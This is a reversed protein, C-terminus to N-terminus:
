GNLKSLTLGLARLGDVSYYPQHERCICNSGCSTGDSKGTCPGLAAATRMEPLGRVQPSAQASEDTEPLPYYTKRGIKVGSKRNIVTRTQRAKKKAM